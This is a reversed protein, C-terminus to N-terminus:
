CCGDTDKTDFSTPQPSHKKDVSSSTFSSEMQSVQVTSWDEVACWEHQNPFLTVLRKKGKPRAKFFVYM